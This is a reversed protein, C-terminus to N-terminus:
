PPWTTPRRARQRLPRRQHASAAAARRPRRRRVREHPEAAGPLRDADSRGTGRQDVLLLNRRSCCRGTCRPTRRHRHRDHQLRPRGRAAVVTGLVPKSPDSAPLSRSGSALDNGKVAGTPDWPAALDGATRAPSSRRVAAADAVRGHIPGRKAAAPRARGPSRRLPKPGAARAAAGRGGPHRWARSRCGVTLGRSRPAQADCRSYGRVPAARGREPDCNPRDQSMLCDTHARDRLAAQDGREAVGRAAPRGVGARRCRGPQGGPGARDRQVRRDVRHGRVGGRHPPQVRRRGAGLVRGRRERPTFM